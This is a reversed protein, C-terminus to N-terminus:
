EAGELVQRVAERYREPVDEITRKGAEILKVYVDVM